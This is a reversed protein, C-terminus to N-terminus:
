SIGSTTYSPRMKGKANGLEDDDGYNYKWALLITWLFFKMFFINEAQVKNLISSGKLIIFDHASKRLEARM